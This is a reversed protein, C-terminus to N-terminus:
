FLIAEIIKNLTRTVFSNKFGQRNLSCFAIFMGAFFIIWSLAMNIISVCDFLIMSLVSGIPISMLLIGFLYARNGAEIAIFKFWAKSIASNIIVSSIVKNLFGAIKDVISFIFLLFRYLLSHKFFPKKNIYRSLISHIISDEKYRNKVDMAVKFKSNDYANILMICIAYVFRGFVSGQVFRPM